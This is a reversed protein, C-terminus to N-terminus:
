EWLKAINPIRSEALARSDMGNWFEPPTGQVNRVSLHILIRTDLIPNKNQKQVRIQGSMNCIYVSEKLMGGGGSQAM